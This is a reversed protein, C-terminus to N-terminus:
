KVKTFRDIPALSAKLMLHADWEARAILQVARSEHLSNPLYTSWPNSCVIPQQVLCGMRARRGRRGGQGEVARPSPDISDARGQLASRRQNLLRGGQAFAVEREASTMTDELDGRDALMCGDWLLFQWAM